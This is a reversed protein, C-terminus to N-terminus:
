MHLQMGPIYFYSLLTCASVNNCIIPNLKCSIILDNKM